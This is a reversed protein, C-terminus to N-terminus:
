LESKHKLQKICQKIAALSVYDASGLRTAFEILDIVKNAGDEYAQEVDYGCFVPQSMKVHLSYDRFSEPIGNEVSKEAYERALQEITMSMAM